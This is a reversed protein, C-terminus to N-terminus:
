RPSQEGIDGSRVPDFPAFGWTKLLDLRESAIDPRDFYINSLTAPAIAPYTRRIEAATERARHAVDAAKKMLHMANFAACSAIVVLAGHVFGACRPLHDVYRTALGVWGIWFLSSFSVYRTAFAQDAGYASVRGYAVLFSSLVIVAM